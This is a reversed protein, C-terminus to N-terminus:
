AGPENQRLTEGENQAEIQAWFEHPPPPPPARSRALCIETSTDPLLCSTLMSNYVVSEMEVGTSGWDCGNGRSISATKSQLPCKGAGGSSPHALPPTSMTRCRFFFSATRASSMPTCGSTQRSIRCYIWNCKMRITTIM